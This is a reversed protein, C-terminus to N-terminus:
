LPARTCPPPHAPPAVKNTQENEQWGGQISRYFPVNVSGPVRGEAFEQARCGLSPTTTTLPPTPPTARSFCTAQQGMAVPIAQQILM